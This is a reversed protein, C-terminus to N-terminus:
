GMGEPIMGFDASSEQYEGFDASSQRYEGFDAMPNESGMEPTFDVGSMPTFDVGGMEPTFDVGGFDVKSSGPIQGVRGPVYNIGHLGATGTDLMPIMQSANVGIGVAAAGILGQGLTSVVESVMKNKAIFGQKALLTLGVGVLLNPLTPGVVPVKNLAAQVPAAYTGLMKNSYGYFAGGIALAGMQGAIPGLQPFRQFFDAGIVPNAGRKPNTRKVSVLFKKKKSKVKKAV